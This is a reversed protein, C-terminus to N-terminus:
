YELEDLRLALSSFCFVGGRMGGVTWFRGGGLAGLSGVPLHGEPALTNFTLKEYSVCQNNVQWGVRDCFKDWITDGPYNGDFKGGCELYIRNQVSFGFKGNSYKVWLFDITKLDACPFDLLEESKFRKGEKKGVARIMTRYTERDAEKWNGAKLLDRLRTYDISKESGLDDAEVIPVSIVSSESSDIPVPIEPTATAQKLDVGLKAAIAEADEDQLQLVRLLNRLDELTASSMQPDNELADQVWQEFEQLKEQFLQYPQLIEAEIQQAAEPSLGLNERQINFARRDIRSLEGQKQKAREEFTKRYVLSPDGQPAKALVIKYGERVAYIEPKMRPSAEQVKEKAYEHLEDVTIQGDNNRDAAGTELGQVLYRTYTSIAAGEGADSVQTATSSTLIARGEGGLQAKLDIAQEAISKANMDNAFAGSFCCDLILVQRECRSNSMCTQVFSAPVATGILIRGQENKQTQSTAIYLSSNDDRVGHGSFYLLILDEKSRNESFFREIGLQLTQLDPNPLLDVMDFGGIEPDQLVRQMEQIDTLTGPLANLGGAYEGVGVLLAVKAM